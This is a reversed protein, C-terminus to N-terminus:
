NANDNRTEDQFTQKGPTSVGFASCCVVALHM